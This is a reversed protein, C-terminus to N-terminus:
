ACERQMSRYQVIRWACERPMSRDISAPGLAGVNARMSSVKQKMNVPTKRGSSSSGRGQTHQIFYITYLTYVIYYCYM